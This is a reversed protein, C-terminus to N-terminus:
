SNFLANIARMARIGRQYFPLKHSNIKMLSFIIDEIFEYSITWSAGYLGLWFSSHRRVMRGKETLRSLYKQYGQNKIKQGKFSSLTYALAILLILNTLRQTNAKSGELNYGGTKCDKFMAEIGMRKQYVKVGQDATSLNTLIYWPEEVKGGKKKYLLLNNRGFGKEKTVKQNVLFHKISPIIELEKLPRSIRGRQVNTTKKQRLAFKVYSRM